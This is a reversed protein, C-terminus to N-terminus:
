PNFKVNFQRTVEDKDGDAGNIVLKIEYDGEVDPLLIGRNKDASEISATTSAAPATAISWAFTRAGVSNAGPLAVRRPDLPDFVQDLIPDIVAKPYLIQIEKTAREEPKVGSDMVLEITYLQEYGLAKSAPVFTAVSSAPNRLEFQTDWKYDTPGDLVSWSWVSGASGSGDLTVGTVSKDFLVSGPAQISAKSPTTRARSVTVITLRARLASRSTAPQAQLDGIM